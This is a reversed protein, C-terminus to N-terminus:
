PICLDDNIMWATKMALIDPDDMSSATSYIDLIKQLLDDDDVVVRAEYSVGVRGIRGILQYLVSRHHTDGFARDISLGTLGDINTGFVLEEGSVIFNTKPILDLALGRQYATMTNEEYLVSGSMMMGLEMESFATEYEHPVDIMQRNERLVAAVNECEPHFRKYHAHSNVVYSSPWPLRSLSSMEESIESVSIEKESRRTKSNMIKDHENKKENFCSDRRRIMAHIDPCGELHDSCLQSYTQVIDRNDLIHLHKNPFQYAHRTFMDHFVPAECLRQPRYGKLCDLVSEQLEPTFSTIRTLIRIWWELLVPYVIKGVTPLNHEWELIHTDDTEFASHHSLLEIMHLIDLPAYMRRILPDDTLKTLFSPIDTTQKLFSHPFCARGSKDIMTCSISVGSADVMDIMAHPYMHRFHTTVFPIDEFKPLIASMIVSHRPLVKLIRTMFATTEPSGVIEDIYAVFLERYSEDQLMALCTKPDCVLIDPQKKTKEIYYEWQDYVTGYKASCGDKYVQKWISPFCRKYPRLLFSDEETTSRTFSGMWLHLDHGLLAVSAVYNNVLINPCCFLVTKKRKMVSLAQTLPIALFTKGTGPPMRNGLLLPSDNIVADIVHRLLKKQQPYLDVGRLIGTTGNGSGTIIKKEAVSFLTLKPHECLYCLIDRSMYKDVVIKRLTDCWTVLPPVDGSRQTLISIARDGAVLAEAWMKQSPSVSLDLRAWWELIMILFTLEYQFKFVCPTNDVFVIKDIDNTVLRQSNQLRIIDSKKQTTKKKKTTTTQGSSHTLFNQTEKYVISKKYPKWRECMLNLIFVTDFGFGSIMSTEEHSEVVTERSSSKKTKIHQPATTTASSLIHEPVLDVAGWILTQIVEWNEPKKELIKWDVNWTKNFITNM